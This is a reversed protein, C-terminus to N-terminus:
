PVIVEIRYFVKKRDVLPDVVEVETNNGTIQSNPVVSWYTLDASAMVRYSVDQRALWRIAFGEPRLGAEKVVFVDAASTPDTHAIWEMENNQGDGNADQSRGGKTVYDAGFVKQAWTEYTDAAATITLTREVPEASEWEANGDQLARIVVEGAATPTITIGVLTAPGSVVEFRVPQSSTAIAGLTFAGSSLSRAAPQPFTITQQTLTIPDAQGAEYKIYTRVRCAAAGNGATFNGRVLYSGDAPAEWGNISEGFGAGWQNAIALVQGGSGILQLAVDRRASVERAEIVVRQGRTLDVRWEGGAETEVDMAQGDTPLALVPLNDTVPAGNNPACAYHVRVVAPPTTKAPDGATGAQIFILYRGAEAFGRFSGEYRDKAQNQWLQLTGRSTGDPGVVEGWVGDPSKGDPMVIGAVWFRTAQGAVVQMAASAKGIFPPDDATVYASGVFANIAKLGDQLKTFMGDGSDDFLAPVTGGILQALDTAEGYSERLDRGRAISDWIWRTVNSWLGSAFTNCETSSTSSLLIRRYDPNGSSEVFAGSYDADVIVQVMAGSADQLTDLWAKLDTPSVTDGNACVLGEQSGQGVLFVTLAGLQDDANAWNEIADQLAAATADLPTDVGLAADAFMMIDEDRVKRLLASERAYEALSGAVNAGLWTEEGPAFIIVRNRVTAQSVHLIAPPSVQGWVDRAQLLVTYPAGGESFGGVLATWEGTAPDRALPVEPLDVVPEDGSAHYGPPVIVGWVKDLAFASEVAVTLRAEQTGQLFIDGGVTSVVPRGSAAVTDLGLKAAALVAGGPSAQPTQLSAMAAIAEAHAQGLSKGAAVGSWWMSSYSVLGNAALHALEDAGSSTLVLRRSSYTDAQSLPGAVRGGYCSELVVVVSLNPRAAQLNDLWADLEPGSVSETESLLFLGDDNVAIRGHDVLYIMFVETDGGVATGESLAAQLAARTPFADAADGYGLWLISDDSLGRYQLVEHARTSLANAAPWVPDNLGRRGDVLLGRWKLGSSGGRQVVNIWALGTRAAANTVVVQDIGPTSGALYHGTAAEVSGGSPASGMSWTFTGDNDISTFEVTEGTGVTVVAPTIRLHRAPNRLFVLAGDTGGGIIDPDGDGDLDVVTVTLGARFGNFTGGWVKSELFFSGDARGLFRWVRGQADSALIDMRGDGDSDAVALATGGTVATGLLNRTTAPLAYPLAGSAKAFHVVAGTTGDLVLLDPGGPKPWFAPHLATGGVNLNGVWVFPVAGGSVSQYFRLVGDDSGVVLDARGDGSWDGFAPYVPGAPWNSLGSLAGSLEM